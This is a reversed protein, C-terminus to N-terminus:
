AAQRAAETEEQRAVIPRFVINLVLPAGKPAIGPPPVVLLGNDGGTRFLGPAVEEMNDYIPQAAIAKKAEEYGMLTRQDNFGIHEIQVFDYMQGLPLCVTIRAEGVPVMVSYYGDHTPVAEVDIVAQDTADAVIAPLKLTGVDFDSKRLDLGFRHMTFVAMNIPLGHRQLEGPLYWRTANKTYFLGRQRLGRAAAEPDIMRAVDRTGLNMDHDFREFLAVESAIPLFLLRTLAAAAAQRRTEATDSLPPRIFGKGVDAIYDLCAVQARDRLDSQAGKLGPAERVPTGDDKYNITSGQALTCLQEVIAIFQWLGHLVRPDYNRVDLLGKKDLGAMTAESMALYRGAIELKMVRRLVPEILNQVTGNYGVDVLMVADGDNVGHSRLHAATREAFKASRTLIKQVNGPRMVAELFRKPTADKALKDIEDRFFGLQRGITRWERSPLRPHLFDRIAQEDTFSTGYAIYRSIEVRAVRDAWDPYRALFAAAPLHGDRLLFLLRPPKGTRAEMADAEERLWGAFGDMLPGIVDHGIMYAADDHARLAIAARHPQHIPSTWGTAQDILTAAAAELRLRQASDADFQVLHATHIGLKAPAEQDAVPNDGVHLMAQPSLGLEQLVPVFLGGAKAIGYASSCFIRDIMALVDDGAAAAILARLQPETLYTDSVMAITLGRAKAAAMLDRTPAFGFCHRAEADLEAAIAAERLASDAGPPLMAAYIQDLTVEDTDRAFPGDLRAVHEGGIRMDPGGAIGLDAFLDTPKNLNRWILTDFCDLSLCTIGPPAQDLLTALETARVSLKM